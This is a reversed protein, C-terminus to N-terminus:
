CGPLTVAASHEDAPVAGPRRLHKSSGATYARTANTHQYRDCAHCMRLRVLTHQEFWLFVALPQRRCQVGSAHLYGQSCRQIGVQAIRPQKHAIFGEGTAFTGTVGACRGTCSHSINRTLLQPQSPAGSPRGSMASWGSGSLNEQFQSAQRHPNPRHGVSQPKAARALLTEQLIFHRSDPLDEVPPM